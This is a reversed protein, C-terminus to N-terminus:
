QGQVLQIIDLFHQAQMEPSLLDVWSAYDSENTFGFHAIIWSVDSTALMPADADEVLEGSM